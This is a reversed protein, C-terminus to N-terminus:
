NCCGGEERLSISPRLMIISHGVNGIDPRWKKLMENNYEYRSSLLLLLLILIRRLNWSLSWLSPPAEVNFCYWAWFCTCTFLLILCCNTAIMIILNSKRSSMFSNVSFQKFHQKIIFHWDMKKQSSRKRYFQEHCFQQHVTIWWDSLLISMISTLAM